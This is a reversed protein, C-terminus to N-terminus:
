FFCPLFICLLYIYICIAYDICICICFFPVCDFIEQKCHIFFFALLYFRIPSMIQGRNKIFNLKAIPVGHGRKVALGRLSRTILEEHFAWVVYTYIWDGGRWVCFSSGMWLGKMFNKWSIKLAGM